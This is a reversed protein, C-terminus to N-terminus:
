KQCIQMEDQQHKHIQSYNMCLGEPYWLSDSQDTKEGMWMRRGRRRNNARRWGAPIEEAVRMSCEFIIALTELLAEALGESVRPPNDDTGGPKDLKELKHRVNLVNLQDLCNSM